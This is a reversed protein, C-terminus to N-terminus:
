MVKFAGNKIQFSRRDGHSIANVWRNMVLESEERTVAVQNRDGSPNRANEVVANVTRLLQRRQDVLGDVEDRFTKEIASNSSQSRQDREQKLTTIRRNISAIQRMLEQGEEEWGRQEEKKEPAQATPAQPPTQSGFNNNVVVTPTTSPTNKAKQMQAQLQLVITRLENVDAQVDRDTNDKNAKGVTVLADIFQPSPATLVSPASRLMALVSSLTDRAGNKMQNVGMTTMTGIAVATAAGEKLMNAKEEIAKVVKLGAQNLSKDMSHADPNFRQIASQLRGLADSTSHFRQMARVNVNVDQHGEPFAHNTETNKTGENPTNPM